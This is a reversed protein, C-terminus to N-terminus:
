SANVRYRSIKSCNCLYDLANSLQGATVWADSFHVDIGQQGHFMTHKRYIGAHLYAGAFRRAIRELRM